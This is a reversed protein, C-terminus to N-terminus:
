DNDSHSAGANARSAASSPVTTLLALQQLSDVDSMLVSVAGSFLQEAAVDEDFPLSQGDILEGGTLSIRVNAEEISLLADLDGLVRLGIDVRVCVDHGDVRLYLPRHLDQVVWALFPLLLHPFFLASMSLGEDEFLMPQVRAYDSLTAGLVIPCLSQESSCAQWHQEHVVPFSGRWDQEQILHLYVALTRTSDIGRGSLWGSAYGAEEAMGWSMGAGRAAKSCLAELESRSFQVTAALGVAASSATDISDSM